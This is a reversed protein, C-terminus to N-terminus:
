IPPMKLVTWIKLVSTLFRPGSKKDVNWIRHGVKGSDAIEPGPYQPTANRM